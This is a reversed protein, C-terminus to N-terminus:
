PESFASEMYLLLLDTHSIHHLILNRIETTRSLETRQSSYGQSCQPSDVSFNGKACLAQLPVKVLQLVTFATNTPFLVARERKRTHWKKWEANLHIHIKSLHTGINTTLSYTLCLEGKGLFKSHAASELAWFGWNATRVVQPIYIPMYTFIASSVHEWDTNRIEGGRFALQSTRAWWFVLPLSLLPPLM